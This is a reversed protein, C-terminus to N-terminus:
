AAAPLSPRGRCTWTRAQQLTISTSYTRPTPVNQTLRQRLRAGKCPGRPPTNSPHQQCPASCPLAAGQTGGERVGTRSHQAVCPANAGKRHRPQLQVWSFSPMASSGRKVATSLAALSPNSLHTHTFLPPPDHLPQIWAHTPTTRTHAHTEIFAPLLV